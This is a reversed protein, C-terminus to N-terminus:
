HGALRALLTRRNRTDTKAFISKLHDQVTHESIFLGAAISRTDAGAALLEVLEAERATLGHSRVYLSRRDAPSTQEITVAIDRAEPARDADIRAARLTLWTGAAPRVRALPPHDFVGAESALLAAAVNYAGAPV